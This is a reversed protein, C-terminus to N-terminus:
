IIDFIKNLLVSFCKNIEIKSIQSGNSAIKLMPNVLSCIWILDASYTKIFAHLNKSRIEDLM